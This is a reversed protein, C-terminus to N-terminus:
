SDETTKNEGEYLNIREMKNKDLNKVNVVLEDENRTNFYALVDKKYCYTKFMYADTNEWRKAFWEATKKNITWSLGYPERNIGVGRYIEIPETDSIDNYIKFDEETMLLQKDAKKFFKIWQPISVNPDQNPNETGTWVEELANAYDQKSLFKESLKFVLPRYPKHTLALIRFFENSEVIRDKMFKRAKELNEDSELIDVITNMGQKSNAFTMYRNSLFPHILIFPIDTERIDVYLLPLVAEKISQLDTINKM